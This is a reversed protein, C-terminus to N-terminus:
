CSREPQLGAALRRQRPGHWPPALDAETLTSQSGAAHDAACPTRPSRMGPAERGAIADSRQVSRAPRGADPPLWLCALTLWFVARVLFWM